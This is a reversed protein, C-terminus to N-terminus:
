WIWAAICSNREVLLHQIRNLLLQAQRFTHGVVSHLGKVGGRGVSTVSFPDWDVFLDPDLDTIVHLSISMLRKLVSDWFM